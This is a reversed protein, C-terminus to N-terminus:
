DAVIVEVGLDRLRTVQQPTTATDTVVCDIDTLSCIWGLSARGFKSHDALVIRKRGRKLMEKKAQAEYLNPTTLGKEWDLGNTALFVKDVNLSQLTNGVIPGVSSLTNHRVQGGTLILDIHEIRALEWAINLANTVVTLQKFLSTSLHCALQFTTSGADLLITDGEEVLKLAASAIAKKEDIYEEEKETLTPEFSALSLNVAGGHIRKVVGAEDLEQLDRRITVESVQFLNSLEAVKVSPTQELIEVIKQKRENAFLM